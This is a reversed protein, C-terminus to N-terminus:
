LNQFAKSPKVAGAVPGIKRSVGPQNTRSQQNDHLNCLTHLLRLKCLSFESCLPDYNNVLGTNLDHVDCLPGCNLSCKFVLWNTHCAFPLGIM